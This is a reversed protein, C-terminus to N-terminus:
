HPALAEPDRYLEALTARVTLAFPVSLIIGVIGFLIGGSLFCFIVLAPPLFAAKGLVIPGFFEDISVRLMVAYIIYEVINWASEAQQMAILGAITASAFPGIVPIVELLGTILALFVAHHIHLILGLGIYAATSAYLVVLAVGLFYRWLVNHLDNWVRDAFPRQRPPVLWFLADGTSSGAILLYGLLVWSLIIGFMGAFGYTVISLVRGSDNLTDQLAQVLRHAIGHANIQVGLLNITDNGIFQAVMGQISDTLNGGGQGMQRILPPLGLWGIGAAGAMLVILVLVAFIWRPARTRAALRDILPTCVYALIGAFVFPFLIDRILYFVILVGACIILTLGATRRSPAPPPGRTTQAQKTRGTM